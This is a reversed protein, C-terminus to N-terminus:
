ATPWAVAAVASQVQAFNTAADIQLKATRRILKIHAGVSDWATMQAIVGHAVQLLTVDQGVQHLAAQEASLWPYDEPKLTASPDQRLAAEADAQTASYELAQGSGPTLFILRAQEAAADITTSAALKYSALDPPTPMPLALLQLVGNILRCQGPSAQITDFQEKTVVTSGTPVFAAGDGSTGSATITGDTAVTAWYGTM